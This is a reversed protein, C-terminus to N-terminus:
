SKRKVFTLFLCILLGIGTVPMLFSLIRNSVSWQKGPSGSAAQNAILGATKKSSVRATMSTDSAGDQDNRFTEVASGGTHDTFGGIGSAASSLLSTASTPKSQPDNGLSGKGTPDKTASSQPSATQSSSSHSSASTEASTPNQKVLIGLKRVDVTAKNDGIAYICVGTIYINGGSDALEEINKGAENNIGASKLGNLALEGSLPASSAKIEGTYRDIQAGKVYRNIDVAQDIGDSDQFFIRIRTTKGPTFDYILIDTEINFKLRQDLNYRMGPWLGNTNSFKLMSGSVTITAHSVTGYMVADLSIWRDTETSILSRESASARCFVAAILLLFCLFKKLRM